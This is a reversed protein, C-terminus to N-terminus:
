RENNHDVFIVNGDKLKFWEMLIKDRINIKNYKMTWKGMKQSRLMSNMRQITFVIVHRETICTVPNLNHCNDGLTWNNRIQHTEPKSHSMQGMTGRDATSM